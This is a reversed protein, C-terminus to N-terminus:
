TFVTIMKDLPKRNQGNKKLLKETKLSIKLLKGTGTLGWNEGGGGGGESSGETSLLGLRDTWATPM